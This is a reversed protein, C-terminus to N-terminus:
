DEPGLVVPLKRRRALITRAEELLPHGLLYLGFGWCVGGFVIGAIVQPMPTYASWDNFTMILSAPAIAFMTLLSSKAYIPIFDKLVTDTMRELHPRYLFLSFLAEGIKAVAVWTISALCGLAFLVLGAGSRVFEFKAQRATEGCVVFVEWTMTISVLVMASISLLSLPLAAGIWVPGYLLRIVPGAVVALGAFAPWLLGTMMQVIRLYSGRLSGGHRKQQSFDVFVIRAIILHVNDWLLSNLGSARSYLGLATLGLLRALLLEALRTALVNVGSIALMQLGFSLMGKWESLGLKFHADRRAVLNVGIAAVLSGTLQGYALSMYSFGAFAFALMVANSVLSRVLNLIAIAHFSGRRELGAAPLFEFASLLPSIAMVLLLRQVGPEHLLAGGLASLGVIMVSIFAALVANITFATAFLGPDLSKARVLYSSLGLARIAALFGVISIAVAFVGMDYPTLLRAIVVSAGFQIIFLGGQSLTMWGLSSRISFAM